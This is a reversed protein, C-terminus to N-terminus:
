EGKTRKQKRAWSTTCKRHLANLEDALSAGPESDKRVVLSSITSPRSECREAIELQTLEGREMIEQILKQWNKKM